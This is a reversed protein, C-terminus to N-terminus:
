PSPASAAASFGSVDLTLNHSVRVGARGALRLEAAPVRTVQQGNVFFTAGATDVQVRLRHPFATAGEDRRVAPHATWDRVVPTQAGERRKLLYSGDGRVLFYSYHQASEPGQLPEGGFVLGYGEHLGGSRKHLTAEM